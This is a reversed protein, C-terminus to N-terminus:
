GLSFGRREHRVAGTKSMPDAGHFTHEHGTSGAEDAGVEHAVDDLVGLRPDGHEVLQGVGGAGLREGLERGVADLQDVASMASAAVTSGSTAAWSVTTWRAASDWLSLESSSGAGNTM